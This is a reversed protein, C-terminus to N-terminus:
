NVTTNPRVRPAFRGTAMIEEAAAKRKEKVGLKEEKAESWGARAKLWFIAAAVSSPGESTAKKYLSEAVKANAQVAGTDLEERFHKRLTKEDCGIVAAIDAQPAGYATLARVSARDKESPEYPPRSM